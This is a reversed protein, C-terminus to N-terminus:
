RLDGSGRPAVEVLYTASEVELRLSDVLPHTGLHDGVAALLVGKGNGCQLRLFAVGAMFASNLARETAVLADERRMGHLDIETAM